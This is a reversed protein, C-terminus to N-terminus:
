RFGRDAIVQTLAAAGRSGTSAERIQQLSAHDVYPASLLACAAQHRVQWEPADLLQRLDAINEANGLRCLANAVEARVEADPHQLHHRALPLLQPDTLLRLASAVASADTGHRLVFEIFSPQQKFGIPELLRMLRSLYPQNSHTAEHIAGILSGILPEGGDKLIIVIGAPSWDRHAIIQATVLSAARQADIQVLSRAAVLSLPAPEDLLALLIDWAETNGLHGVGAGTLLRKRLNGRRLLRYMRQTMAQAPLVRNLLLRTGGRLSEQYHLWLNLFDLLYRAPLAPFQVEDGALARIILPRWQTLFAETRREQRLSIMRQVILTLTALVSLLM